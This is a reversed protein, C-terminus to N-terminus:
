FIASSFLCARSFCLCDKTPSSKYAKSSCPHDSFYSSYFGKFSIGGSTTSSISLSKQNAGNIMVLLFSNFRSINSCCGRWVAQTPQLGILRSWFDWYQQWPEGEPLVQRYSALLREFSTRFQGSGVPFWQLPILPRV